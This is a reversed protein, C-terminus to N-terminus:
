INELNFLNEVSCQTRRRVAKAQAWKHEIPNLQPSYAPLYQLLHGANTIAQQIDLRKHFAANDMIIVSNQPTKPLLDQKVWQYFTESDINCDFLSRTLLTKGLQAGIVNIRGKAHWDHLGECRQGKHAYGYRRPMDQAFGSEDIYVLPTGEAQWRAVKAKFELQDGHNAM